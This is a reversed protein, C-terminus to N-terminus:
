RGKQRGRCLWYFYEGGNGVARQVIFRHKCRDCYLTGKLYHNHTRQRTGSGSHADLIRQSAGNLRM